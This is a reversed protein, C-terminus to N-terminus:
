QSKQELNDIQIQLKRVVKLLNQIQEPEIMKMAKMELERVKELDLPRFCNRCNEDTLKNLHNCILCRREKPKFAKYKDGPEKLGRKVLEMEFSEREDAHDYTRIRTPDKWRARMQISKDSEGNILRDHTIGARKFSYSTISKSIGLEMCAKRLRKNVWFPTMQKYTKTLFLYSDPKKFPHVNAWASVYPFAVELIQIMGPGEKGHETVDLWGYNAKLHLKGYKCYCLEQPRAYGSYALSLFAQMPPDSSFYNLLQEIESPSPIDMVRKRSVDVKGKLHKVAYPPIDYDIRGRADREPFLVKWIRKINHIFPVQSDPSKYTKFVSGVIVDIDEPELTSLDKESYYCIAEFDDLLRNRRTYSLDKSDFFSFLRPFYQLNVPNKCYYKPMVTRNKNRKREEPLLGFEKYGLVRREYKGKNKYIDDEVM